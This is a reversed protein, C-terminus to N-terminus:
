CSDQVVVLFNGDGYAVSSKIVRDRILLRGDPDIVTGDNAVRASFISRDPSYFRMDTWFVYYQDNVFRVIPYHQSLYATSVPFDAPILILLLGLIM